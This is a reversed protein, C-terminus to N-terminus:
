CVIVQPVKSSLKACIQRIFATTKNGGKQVDTTRIGWIVNAIGVYRAAVGGLLDGHYMWTQVVDPKLRRLTSVLRTFVVPGDLFSRMGLPIVQVGQERLGIGLKGISTLSIVVHQYRPKAVHSEVLRKLM